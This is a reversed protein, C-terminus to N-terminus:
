MRELPTLGLIKLGNELTKRAAWFLLMRAEAVNQERGMVWLVRHAASISHCLDMLYGALTCPEASEASQKVVDPFRAMKVVLDTAEKESLLTWDVEDSVKVDTKRQMSSLRAHAYQLYPGTDGEATTARAMNFAYDKIRRANFDQIVVASIGVIDATEEPNEVEKAKEENKQMVELMSKHAEELIDSLFVATGKRTSMGTVMGFNIHVCKHAWEFGAMELIKFLQQFHLNQQAGVVYFMKEFNYTQHRWIAAAIDRTIYLTTGDSKRIIVKNIKTEPPFNFVLAGKDEQLLGKEQLMKVAEVMGESFCSEGSYVDFEVNLRKYLEKYEEISLNRFKEWLALADKNGEEMARFYARAEAHVQEGTAPDDADKNINVYVQYLHRIPNKQLEEESGYKRFGVALLGYQKGWDGLYNIAVVNYGLAKHINKIFNGIVTSRLHGFHFPKAINPSSYEVVITKGAGENSTGWKDGLSYVLKLVEKTLLQKNIDFNLYPGASSAKVLLETPAFQDAWQKALQPTPKQNLHKSLRPLCVAFDALGEKKPVEIAELVVEPAIGGLEAVHNAIAQKFKAFVDTYAPNPSESSTSTSTSPQQM